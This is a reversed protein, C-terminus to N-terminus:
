QSTPASHLAVRNGESDLIVARLGHNGMDLKPELLQGGQNEAVAIAQDIRGSVNLYVLPGKTSIDDIHAPIICGSVNTDAHPLLGFSCDNFSEKKVTTGLLASYFAIARDLDTAPIDVWVIQNTM